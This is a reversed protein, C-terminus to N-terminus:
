RSPKVSDLRGSVDVKLDGCLPALKLLDTMTPMRDEGRYQYIPQRNIYIEMAPYGDWSGALEYKPQSGSTDIVITFDWDIAPAGAILQDRPGGSRATHLRVSVRKPSLRIPDDIIMGGVDVAIREHLSGAGRREDNPDGTRDLDDLKGDALAAKAIFSETRGGLNLKSDDYLGDRDFEEDPVLTVVQKARYRAADIDFGRDDGSFVLRQPIAGTFSQPHIAPALVYNSPIFVALSVTYTDSKDASGYVYRSVDSSSEGVASARVVESASEDTTRVGDARPSDTARQPMRCGGVSTMVPAFALLLLVSRRFSFM